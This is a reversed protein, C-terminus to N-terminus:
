DLNLGLTEYVRVNTSLGIDKSSWLKSLAQLVRSALSIRRGIDEESTGESRIKGGLYDFDKVQKLTEGDVRVDIGVADKGVYQVETKDTNMKMGLAKAERSAASM